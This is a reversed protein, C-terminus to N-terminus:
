LAAQAVEDPRAAADQFRLTYTPPVAVPYPRLRRTELTMGSPFHRVRRIPGDDIVEFPGFCIPRFYGRAQWLPSSDRGRRCRM